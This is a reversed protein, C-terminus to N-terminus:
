VVLEGHAKIPHLSVVKVDAHSPAYLKSYLRIFFKFPCSLMLTSHTFSIVFIMLQTFPTGATILLPLRELYLDSTNSNLCTGSASFTLKSASWSLKAATKTGSV